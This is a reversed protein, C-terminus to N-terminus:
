GGVGGGVRWRDGWRPVGIITLAVINAIPAGPGLSSEHVLVTVLAGIMIAILVTAAYSAFRPVLLVLAFLFEAGGIVLAFWAPYGWGEFMGGWVEPGSGTFKSSGALAMMAAELVTVIWLLVIGVKMLGGRESWKM